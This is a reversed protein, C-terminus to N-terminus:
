LATFNLVILKYEGHEDREYFSVYQKTSVVQIAKDILEMAEKWTPDKINYKRLALIRFKAIEGKKDVQFAENIIARLNVNSDTTWAKICEDIKQKALQLELGFELREKFRIDIKYKGDFSTFGANGKWELGSKKAVFELYSEVEAYLKIKDSIIRKQLRLVRDLTNNVVTDQKLMESKIVSVPIARGQADIKTRETTAKAKPTNKTEM